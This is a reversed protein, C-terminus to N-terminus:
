ATQDCYRRGHPRIAGAGPATRKPELGIGTFHSCCIPSMPGPNLNGSVAAPAAIDVLRHARRGASGPTATFDPQTALWTYPTLHRSDLDSGSEHQRVSSTPTLLQWASCLLNLELRQVSLGCKRPQAAADRLQFNRGLMSAGLGGAGQARGCSFSGAGGARATTARAQSLRRGERNLLGQRSRFALPKVAAEGGKRVLHPGHACAKDWRARKQM